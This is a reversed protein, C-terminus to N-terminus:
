QEHPCQEKRLSYIKRIRIILIIVMQALVSKVMTQIKMRGLVGHIDDGGRVERSLNKTSVTMDKFGGVGFVTVVKKVLTILVKVTM